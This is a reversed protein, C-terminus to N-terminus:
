NFYLSVRRYTVLIDIHTPSVFLNLWDLPLVSRILGPTFIKTRIQNSWIQVCPPNPFRNRSDMPYFINFIAAPIKLESDKKAKKMMIYYALPCNFLFLGNIEIGGILDDCETATSEFSRRVITQKFSKHNLVPTSITSAKRDIRNENLLFDYAAIGGLVDGILYIPANFRPNASLYQYHISDIENKLRELATEWEKTQSLIIPILVSGISGSSEKLSCKSMMDRLNNDPIKFEIAHTKIIESSALPFNLKL